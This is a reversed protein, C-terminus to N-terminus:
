GKNTKIQLAEILDAIHKNMGSALNDVADADNANNLALALDRIAEKATRVMKQKACYRGYSLMEADDHINM